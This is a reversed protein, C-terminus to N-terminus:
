TIKDKLKEINQKWFDICLSKSSWVVEISEWLEDTNGRILRSDKNISWEISCWLSSFPSLDKSKPPFQDVRYDEFWEYVSPLIASLTFDELFTVSSRQFRTTATPLLSEDVVELFEDESMNTIQRICNELPTAAKANFNFWAWVRVSCETYRAPSISQFVM